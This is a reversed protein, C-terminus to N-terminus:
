GKGVVGEILPLINRAQSQWQRLRKLRKRYFTDLSAKGALSEMEELRAEGNELHPRIQNVLFGRVLPRLEAVAEFQDRRGGTPRVVRVAGFQRLVKLGQSVSGLSIGLERALSEMEVPEDSSFLFGYIQGVSRPLGVVQVASSFYDVMSQRMQADQEQECNMFSIM